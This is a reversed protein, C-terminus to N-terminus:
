NKPAKWNTYGAPSTSKEWGLSILFAHWKMVMQLGAKEELRREYTEDYHTKFHYPNPVSSDKEKKTKKKKIEKSASSEKKSSLGKGIGIGKGNPNSFPMKPIKKRRLLSELKKILPKKPMIGISEIYFIPDKDGKEANCKVCSKVKNDNYNDGGKSTPVIHDTQMEYESFEMQCYACEIMKAEQSGVIIKGKKVQDQLWNNTEKYKVLRNLIGKKVASNPNLITVDKDKSGYQFEITTAIFLKKGDKMKIVREKGENCYRIFEDIDIDSRKFLDSYDRIFAAINVDWIGATDHKKEIWNFLIKYKGPMSMFWEKELQETDHFRKSM